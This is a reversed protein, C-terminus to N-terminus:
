TEGNCAIFTGLLTDVLERAHEANCPMIELLPVAGGLQSRLAWLGYVGELLNLKGTLRVGEPQETDLHVVQLTAQQVPANMASILDAAFHEDAGIEVLQAIAASEGDGALIYPIDAFATPDCRFMGKRPVTQNKLGLYEELRERLTRFDRIATLVIENNANGAQEVLLGEASFYRHVQPKNDQERFLDVFLATKAFGLAGVIGAVTMDLIVNGDSQTEIWGRKLLADQATDLLQHVKGAPEDDFPFPFLRTTPAQLQYLIWEAEASTLTLVFTNKSNM